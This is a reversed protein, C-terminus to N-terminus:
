TRKRARLLALEDQEWCHLIKNKEERTLRSDRLVGPTKYFKEPDRIAEDVIKEPSKGM